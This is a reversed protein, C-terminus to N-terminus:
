NNTVLCPFRPEKPRPGRKKDFPVPLIDAPIGLALCSRHHKTPMTEENLMRTVRPRKLGLKEALSRDTIENKSMWQRMRETRPLTETTTM